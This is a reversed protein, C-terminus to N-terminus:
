WTKPTWHQHGGGRTEGVRIVTDSVYYYPPVPLNYPAPSGKFVRGALDYRSGHCPCFFGGEWNSGLDPPHIQPRYTPVCGLHTCIAVAVYYTPKISRPVNACEPLQQPVESNPDTCRDSLKPLEALQKETRRLVWVPRSRWLVTILQGPEIKSIDVDVPGSAAQAAADPEMSAIFPVAAAVVGIGGVITTARRLIRRRATNVPEDNRDSM